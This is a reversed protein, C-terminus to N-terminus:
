FIEFALMLFLYIIIFSYVLLLKIFIRLLILLAISFAITYVIVFDILFMNVIIIVISFDFVFLNSFYLFLYFNSNELAVIFRLILYCLTINCVIKIFTTLFLLVSCSKCFLIFSNLLILSILLKTYINDFVFLVGFFCVDVIITKSVFIFACFTILFSL